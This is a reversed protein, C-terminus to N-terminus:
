GTRDTILTRVRSGIFAGFFSSLGVFAYFAFEIPWLNHSTPSVVMELVAAVPLLAVPAAGVLWWSRPQVAGLVIGLVFLSLMTPGFALNELATRLTPFLPATYTSQISGPLLFPPAIICALGVVAAVSTTLALKVRVNPQIPTTSM